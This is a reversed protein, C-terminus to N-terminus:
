KKELDYYVIIKIFELDNKTNEMTREREMIEKVNEQMKLKM